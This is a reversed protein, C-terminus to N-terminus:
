FSLTKNPANKDVAGLWSCDNGNRFLIPAHDQHMIVSLMTIIPIALYIIRLYAPLWYTNPTGSASSVLIKWWLTRLNMLKDRFRQSLTWTGLKLIANRYFSFPLISYLYITAWYGSIRIISSYWTWDVFWKPPLSVRSTLTWEMPYHMVFEPYAM